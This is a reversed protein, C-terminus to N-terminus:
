RLFSVLLIAFSPDCNQSARFNFGFQHPEFNFRRSHPGRHYSSVVADDVSKYLSGDACEHGPVGLKCTRKWTRSGLDKNARAQFYSGVGEANWSHVTSVYVPGQRPLIYYIAVFRLLDNLLSPRHFARLNEGHQIQTQTPAHSYIQMLVAHDIIGSFKSAGSRSAQSTGSGQVCVCM